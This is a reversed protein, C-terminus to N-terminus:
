KIYRTEPGPPSCCYAVRPLPASSHLWPAVASLSSPACGPCPGSAEERGLDDHSGALCFDWCSSLSGVSALGEELWDPGLCGGEKMSRAMQEMVTGVEERGCLLDGASV